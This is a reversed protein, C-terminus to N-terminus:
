VHLFAIQLLRLPTAPVSRIRHVRLHAVFCDYKVRKNHSWIEYHFYQLKFSYLMIVFLNVNIVCIAAHASQCCCIAAAM